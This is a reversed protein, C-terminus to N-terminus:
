KSLFSMAANEWTMLYIWTQLITVYLITHKIFPIQLLEM